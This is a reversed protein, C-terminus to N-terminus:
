LFTVSRAQTPTNLGLLIDPVDPLQDGTRSRRRPAGPRPSAQPSRPHEFADITPLASRGTASGTPMERQVLVRADMEIVDVQSGEDLELGHQRVDAIFRLVVLQVLDRRRESYLRVMLQKRRDLGDM